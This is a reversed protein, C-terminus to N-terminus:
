TSIREISQKSQEVLKETDRKKEGLTLVFTLLAAGRGLGGEVIACPFPRPPRRPLISFGSLYMMVVAVSRSTIFWYWQDFKDARQFVPLRGVGKEEGMVPGNDSAKQAGNGKCPDLEM